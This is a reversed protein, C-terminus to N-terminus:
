DCSGNKREQLVFPATDSRLGRRLSEVSLIDAPAINGLNVDTGLTQILAVQQEKKPAEWILRESLPGAAEVVQQLFRADTEGKENYIGVTGSERGEVIVYAAGAQLDQEVTEVLLALEARFDAAKKGFEAYVTLGAEAALSIAKTREERGLPFTGDSIEIANFGLQRIMQLYQAFPSQLSALEFFTGGPMIDIRSEVAMEVKQQLIKLPYLVSTGFGLKYCDIHDAAVNLLDHMQMLGLGKDIVMSVGRNRPKGERRASPDSWNHPWGLYLPKKKM